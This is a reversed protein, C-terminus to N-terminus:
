RLVGKEGSSMTGEGTRWNISLLGFGFESRRYEFKIEHYVDFNFNTQLDFQQISKLPRFVSDRFDTSFKNARHFYIGDGTSIRQEFLQHSPISPLKGSLLCPDKPDYEGKLGLVNHCM